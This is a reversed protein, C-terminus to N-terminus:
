YGKSRHWAVELAEVFKRRMKYSFAKDEALSDLRGEVMEYPLSALADIVKALYRRTKNSSKVRKLESVLGDACEPTKFHQLSDVVVELRELDDQYHRLLGLLYVGAEIRGHFVMSQLMACGSQFGEIPQCVTQQLIGDIPFKKPDLFGDETIWPIERNPKKRSGMRLEGLTLERGNPARVSLITDPTPQSSWSFPDALPPFGEPYFKNFHAASGGTHRGEPGTPPSVGVARGSVPTRPKVAAVVDPLSCSYPEVAFCPVSRKEGKTGAM